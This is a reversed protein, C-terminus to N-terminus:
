LCSPTHSGWKCWGDPHLGVLRAPFYWFLELILGCVSENWIKELENV